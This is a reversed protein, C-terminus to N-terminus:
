ENAFLYKLGRGLLWVLAAGISFVVAPSAIGDSFSVALGVLVMLVATGSCMWYLVYGIRQAATAEGAM